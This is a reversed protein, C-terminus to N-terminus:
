RHTAQKKDSKTWTQLIVSINKNVVINEIKLMEYCAKHLLENITDFNIIELRQRQKYQDWFYTGTGEFFVPKEPNISSDFYYAYRRLNEKPMLGLYKCCIAYHETINSRYADRLEIDKVSNLTKELLKDRVETMLARLRGANNHGGDIRDDGYYIYRKNIFHQYAENFTSILEIFYSNVWKFYTFEGVSYVQNEDIIKIDFDKLFEKKIKNLLVREKQIEPSVTEEKILEEYKGNYAGTFETTIALIAILIGEIKLYEVYQEENFKNLSLDYPYKFDIKKKYEEIDKVLEILLNEIYVKCDLQNQPTKEEVRNDRKPFSLKLEDLKVLKELIDREYKLRPRMDLISQHIQSQEEKKAQKNKIEEKKQSINPLLSLLPSQLLDGLLEVSKEYDKKSINGKRDTKMKELEELVSQVKKLQEQSVNISEINLIELDLRAYEECANNYSKELEPTYKAELRNIYDDVNIDPDEKLKGELEEKTTEIVRKFVGKLNRTGVQSQLIINIKSISQNIKKIEDELTEFIIKIKSAVADIETKKYKPFWGKKPTKLKDLEANAEKILEKINEM